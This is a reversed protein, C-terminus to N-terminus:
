DTASTPLGSSSSTALRLSHAAVTGAVASAQQHDDRRAQSAQSQFPSPTLNKLRVFHFWIELADASSCVSLRSATARQVAPSMCKWSEEDERYKKRALQGAALELM